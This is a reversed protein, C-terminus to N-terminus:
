IEFSGKLICEDSFMQLVNPTDYQPTKEMTSESVVVRRVSVTGCGGLM